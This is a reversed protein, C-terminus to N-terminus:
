VRLSTVKQLHASSSMSRWGYEQLDANQVIDALYETVISQFLRLYPLNVTRKEFYAKQTNNLLEPGGKVALLIADAYREASLCLTVAFGFDGLVLAKTVLRDMSVIFAGNYSYSISQVCGRDRELPGTM